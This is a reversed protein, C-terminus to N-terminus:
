KPFYKTARRTGRTSVDKGRHLKKAPLALEKTTVGMGQAIEEIRKGPNKAIFNGLTTTLV